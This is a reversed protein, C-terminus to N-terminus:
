FLDNTRLSSDTRLYGLLTAYEEGTLEAKAREVENRALEVAGMHYMSYVSWFYARLNGPMIDLSKAAYFQVGEYDGAEALTKLLENVVGVYRMSYHNSLGIIWHEDCAKEYVHGRYIEVARKLLDVKHHIGGAHQAADRLNDFQQMDTMIRLEPNIRYGTPTSEILPHESILAYAQRFRYIFGRISNSVSDPDFEEDPWLASAIELPPHTAKRNLLLYTVVRASKPAKFDQERLVGQSTYIEMDGFFNIIVDKDSQIAEPSLSMKASELYAHQNIAQLVVYALMSLMRCDTGYRQPHRVVLFGVPHPKVPVALLSKARVREYVTYEEPYDDKIKKSNTVVVPENDRMAQLWRPLGSASEFERMLKRTEDNPSTNHWMTPTWIGLDLDVELFGCWDAQYFDCATRLTLRAIEEPDDSTHLAAELSSLTNVFDLAYQIQEAQVDSIGHDVNASTRNLSKFFKRLM